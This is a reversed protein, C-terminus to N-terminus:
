EILRSPFGAKATAATLAPVSTKEDDFIVVARRADASVEAKAVGPVRGLSKRVLPACASRRMM